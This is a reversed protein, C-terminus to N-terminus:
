PCQGWSTSTYFEVSYWYRELRRVRPVECPIGGFKGSSDGSAAAALSDKPDFVLYVYTDNGGFGWGDWEIHRLEGETSEPETSIRAKYSESKLFWRAHTRIAIMNAFMVWSVLWYVPFSLIVSLGPRQKRRISIVLIAVALLVSLIPVGLFFYTIEGLDFGGSILIPFNLIAAGAAACLLFWWNFRRIYNSKEVM